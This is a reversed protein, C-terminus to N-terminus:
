RVTYLQETEQKGLFLLQCELVGTSNVVAQM